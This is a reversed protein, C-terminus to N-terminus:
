KTAKDSKCCEIVTKDKKEALEKFWAAGKSIVSANESVFRYWFRFMNDSISYVSKKSSKEGNLKHLTDETCRHKIRLFM